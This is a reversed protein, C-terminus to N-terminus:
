KISPNGLMASLRQVAETVRAGHRPCLRAPLEAGLVRWLDHCGDFLTTSLLWVSPLPARLYRRWQEAAEAEATVVWEALAVLATDPVECSLAFWLLGLGHFAAEEDPGSPLRPILWVLLAMAAADIGTIAQQRERPSLIQGVARLSDILSILTQSGRIDYCHNEPRGYARLLTACAFARRWHRQEEGSQTPPRDWRTLELVETPICQGLDLAGGDLLRRLAKFHEDANCWYDAEAIIRLDQEGLMGAILMVLMDADPPLTEPLPPPM